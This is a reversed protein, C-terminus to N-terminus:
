MGGLLFSSPIPDVRRSPGAGMLLMIDQASGATTAGAASLVPSAGASMTLGAGVSVQEYDGKTDSRRGLVVGPATTAVFHIYQLRKKVGAVLDVLGWLPTSNPTGNRDLGENTIYQPVKTADGQITTNLLKNEKDFTQGNWRNIATQIHELDDHLLGRAQEWTSELYNFITIKM